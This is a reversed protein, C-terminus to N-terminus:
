FPPDGVPAPAASPREEAADESADTAPRRTLSSFETADLSVGYKQEGNQTWNTQGVNGKVFVLDGKKIFKKVFDIDQPRWVTVENWRTKTEWEKNANQRRYNSGVTVKTNKDFEKIRGVNGIITFEALNKM